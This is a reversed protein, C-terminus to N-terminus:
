VFSLVQPPYTMFVISSRSSVKIGQAAPRQHYFINQRAAPSDRNAHGASRQDTTMELLLKKILDSIRSRNKMPENQEPYLLRNCFSKWEIAKGDFRGPSLNSPLKIHCLENPFQIKFALLEDTLSIVGYDELCPSSSSRVTHPPIIHNTGTDRKTFSFISM